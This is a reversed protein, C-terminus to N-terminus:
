QRGSLIHTKIRSRSRAIRTDAEGLIRDTSLALLLSPSLSLPGPLCCSLSRSVSCPPWSRVPCSLPTLVRRSWSAVRGHLRPLLLGGAERRGGGAEPRQGRAMWGGAELGGARWGELGGTELRWDGTELRVRREGTGARRNSRRGEDDAGSSSPLRGRTPRCMVAAEERMQPKCAIPKCFWNTKGRM